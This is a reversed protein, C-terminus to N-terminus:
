MEVRGLTAPIQTEPIMIKALVLSAPASIISAALLHRADVGMDAYVAILSVSLTAFGGVMVAFLESNTMGTLFPKVLLPAQTQGMFVNASTCLSEAGSLGMLQQALIASGKVIWQMIRLHYLVTALASVFVIAPLVRFSYIALISRDTPHSSPEAPTGFLFETGRDSCSYVLEFIGRIQQFLAEGLPTRLIFWALIVQLGSGVWAVRWPFKKHDSSLLWAIGILVFYGLLSTVRYEIGPV